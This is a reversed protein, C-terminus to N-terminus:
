CGKEEGCGEGKPLGLIKGFPVEMLGLIQLEVGVDAYEKGADDNM